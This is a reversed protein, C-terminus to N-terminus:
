VMLNPLLNFLYGILMIGVAVIGFFLVILQLKMVRRLIVAEPLSLAATAMMFALATGLPVGKQFLVVAIPVIASCNAYLPVGILVALPVSFVGTKELVKQISEEPIFGHILAGVGVGLLVWLWLKKVISSAERRGYDVREIFRTYEVERDEVARLRLDEVIFREVKLRDILVGSVIGLLLGFLIYAVTVKLGFFGFMLVALYENIIPSTVLFSFAPGLPVGARIFSMFVPISSCTCFPTVAGFLAAIIYSVGLKGGGLWRRVKKQPIYTRLVGIFWIMFYLLLLIKVSDYVFFNLTEAAKAGGELGLLSQVLWDVTEQLM